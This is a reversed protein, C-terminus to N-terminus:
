FPTPELRVGCSSSAPAAMKHISPSGIALIKRWQLSGTLIQAQDFGDNGPAPTEVIKFRFIPEFPSLPAGSGITEVFRRYLLCGARIRQFESSGVLRRPSSGLEVWDHFEHVGNRCSIAREGRTGGSRFLRLVRRRGGSAPPSGRVCRERRAGSACRPLFECPRQSVSPQSTVSDPDAFRLGRVSRAVDLEGLRGLAPASFEPRVGSRVAASRLAPLRGVPPAPAARNGMRRVVRSRGGCQHPLASTRAYLNRGGAPFGIQSLFNSGSPPKAVGWVPLGLSWLFVLGRSFVFKM